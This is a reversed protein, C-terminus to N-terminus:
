RTSSVPSPPVHSVPPSLNCVKERQALSAATAFSDNDYSGGQHALPRVDDGCAQEREGAQSAVQAHGDAATKKGKLKRFNPALICSALTKASLLGWISTTHEGTHKHTRIPSTINATAFLKQIFM